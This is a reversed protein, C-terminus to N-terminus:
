YVAILNEIRFSRIGGAELDYYCCTKYNKKKTVQQANAADPLTGTALRVTGDAKRYSFRVKGACFAKQLQYLKWAKTLCVSWGLLTTNYIEHATKMVDCRYSTKM